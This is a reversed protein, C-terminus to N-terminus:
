SDLMEHMNVRQIFRDRAHAVLDGLPHARKLRQAHRNSVIMPILRRKASTMKASSPVSM